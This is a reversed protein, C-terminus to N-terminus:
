PRTLQQSAQAFLMLLIAAEGSLPQSWFDHSRVQEVALRYCAELLQVERSRRDAKMRLAIAMAMYVHFTAMSVSYSRQQNLGQSPDEIIDLFIKLMDRGFPYASGSAGQVFLDLLAEIELSTPRSYCSNNDYNSLLGFTSAGGEEGSIDCMPFDSVSYDFDLSPSSVSSRRSLPSEVFNKPSLHPTADYSLSSCVSMPPSLTLGFNPPLLNGDPGSAQPNVTDSIAPSLYPSPPLSTLFVNNEFDVVEIRPIGLDPPSGDPFPQGFSDQSDYKSPAFDTFLHLCPSSPQNAPKNEDSQSIRKTLHGTSLEVIRQELQKVREELAAQSESGRRPRVCNLSFRRCTACPTEGDCRIKRRRCRECAIVVPKPRSSWSGAPSEGVTRSRAIRPTNQEPLTRSLDEM